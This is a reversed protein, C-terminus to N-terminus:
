REVYIKYARAAEAASKLMLRNTRGKTEPYLRDDTWMGAVEGGNIEMIKGDGILDIGLFYPISYSGTGGLPRKPFDGQNKESLDCVARFAHLANRYIKEMFEERQEIDIGIRDMMDDKAVMEVDAGWGVRAFGGVIHLRSENDATVFVRWNYDFGGVPHIREQIVTGSSVALDAAHAIAEHHEQPMQYSKVGKAQEGTQPKVVVNCKKESLRSRLASLSGAIKNKFIERNAPLSDPRAIHVEPIWLPPLSHRSCYHKLAKTTVHKNNVINLILESRLIPLGLEHPPTGNWYHPCAFHIIRPHRFSVLSYSGDDERILGSKAVKVRNKGIQEFTNDAGPYDFAAFAQINKFEAATDLVSYTSVNWGGGYIIAFNVSSAEQKRDVNEKIAPFCGQRKISEYLGEIRDHLIEYDNTGEIGLSFLAKDPRRPAYQEIFDCAWFYLKKLAKPFEVEIALATKTCRFQATKHLKKWEDIVPHTYNWLSEWFEIEDNFVPFKVQLQTQADHLDALRKPLISRWDTEWAICRVAERAANSM